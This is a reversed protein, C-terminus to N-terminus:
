TNQNKMTVKLKNRDSYAAERLPRVNLGVLTAPTLECM